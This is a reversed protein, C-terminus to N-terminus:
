FPFTNNDVKILVELLFSREDVMFRVTIVSAVLAWSRLYAIPAIM